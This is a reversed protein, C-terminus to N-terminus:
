AGPLVPPCMVDVRVTDGMGRHIQMIELGVDRLEDLIEVDDIPEQFYLWALRSKRSPGQAWISTGLKGFYEQWGEIDVTHLREM